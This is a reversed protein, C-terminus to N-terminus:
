TGDFTEECSYRMIRLPKKLDDPTHSKNDIGAMHVEYNPELGVKIRSNSSKGSIIKVILMIIGQERSQDLKKRITM